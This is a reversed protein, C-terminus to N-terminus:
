LKIRHKTLFNHIKEEWLIGKLWKSAAVSTWFNGSYINEPRARRSIFQQLITLFEELSKDRTFDM